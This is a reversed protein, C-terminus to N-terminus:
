VIEGQCVCVALCFDIDCAETEECISSLVCSAATHAENPRCSVTTYQHPPDIVCVCVCKSSSRLRLRLFYVCVLCPCPTIRGWQSLFFSCVCVCLFTSCSCWTLRMVARIMTHIRREWLCSWSADHSTSTSVLEHRRKHREDSIQFHKMRLFYIFIFLYFVYFLFSFYYVYGSPVKPPILHLAFTALFSLILSFLFGSSSSVFLSLFSLLFISVLFYFLLANQIWIILTM